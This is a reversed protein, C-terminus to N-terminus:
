DDSDSLILAVISKVIWYLFLPITAIGAIKNWNFIFCFLTILGLMLAGIIILIIYIKLSDVLELLDSRTIIDKFKPNSKIWPIVIPM